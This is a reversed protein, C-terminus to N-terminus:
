PTRWREREKARRRERERESVTTQPQHSKVKETMVAIEETPPREKKGSPSEETKKEFHRGASSERLPPGRLRPGREIGIKASGHGFSRQDGKSGKWM